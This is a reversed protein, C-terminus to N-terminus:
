IVNIPDLFASACGSENGWILDVWGPFDVFPNRNNQFNQYILNNRHMEFEDVPDAHHWAILDSLIGLKGTVTASSINTVTTYYNVIELNPNVYSISETGSVNNYRAAMYFCARAIDGKDEDRPEFVTGSGGLTKSTGNKNGSLWSYISGADAKVQGVYGYPNNNHENQNVRGDGAMLHHVDNYALSSDKGSDNGFGYSKPWVHERNFANNDGNKFVHASSGDAKSWAKITASPDSHDRYLCHIIPNNSSNSASSGFTYSSYSNTSANYTAKADGSAPSLSWDRDTIEYIKWVDDYKFFHHGNQLIKKLHGLLNKGRRQSPTLYDIYAYYDRISAESPDSLKINKNNISSKETDPAKFDFQRPPLSISVSSSSSSSSISSLISSSSSSSVVSSSSLSSYSSESSLPAESSISSESSVSAESSLISISSESSLISPESSINESSIVASSEESSYISSSLSTESSIVSSISTISVSSSEQPSSSSIVESSSSSSSSIVESSLSSESQISAESSSSSIISSFISSQLSESSSSLISESSSVVSKSSSTASSSADPGAKILLWQGEQKRYIDQKSLDLYYDGDVGLNGPIGSGQYFQHGEIASPDLKWAGATKIYVLGTDIDLYHDGDKGLASSPDGKGQFTEGSLSM